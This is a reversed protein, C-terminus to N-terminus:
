LVNEKLLEKGVESLAVVQEGNEHARGDGPHRLHEPESGYGLM